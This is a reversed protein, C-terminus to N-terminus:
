WNKKRRNTTSRRFFDTLPVSKLEDRVYTIDKEIDVQNVKLSPRDSRKQARGIFHLLEGSQRKCIILQDSAKRFLFDLGGINRFHQLWSSASDLKVKLDALMNKARDLREPNEERFHRWNKYSSYVGPLGKLQNFAAIAVTTVAPEM